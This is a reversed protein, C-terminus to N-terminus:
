YISTPSPRAALSIPSHPPRLRHQASGLHTALRGAGILIIKMPVDNNMQLHEDILVPQEDSLVRESSREGM